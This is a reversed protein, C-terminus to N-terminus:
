SNVRTTRQITPGVPISGAREEIDIFRRAKRSQGLTDQQASLYRDQKNKRTFSTGLRGADWRLATKKDTFRSSGSYYSEFGRIMM